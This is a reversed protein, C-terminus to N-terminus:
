RTVTIPTGSYTKTTGVTIRNDTSSVSIVYGTTYTAGAQTCNGSTYSRSGVTSDPDVPLDAIFTTVLPTCLNVNGVANAGSTITCPAATPCTAVSLGAPTSGKNDAMFQNVANLIANVDSSRKTDNAQGFQKAPNIAILVIALLIALIGIVVLLEILTFGKQLNKITTKASKM